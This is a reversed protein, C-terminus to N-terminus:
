YQFRPQNGFLRAQDPALFHDGLVYRVNRTGEGNRQLQRLETCGERNYIVTSASDM